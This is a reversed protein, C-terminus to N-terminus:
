EKQLEKKEMIVLLIFKIIAWFSFFLLLFFLFWVQTYNPGDGIPGVKPKYGNYVIISGWIIFSVAFLIYLYKGKTGLKGM